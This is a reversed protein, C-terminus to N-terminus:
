DDAAEWTDPNHAESILDLEDSRVCRVSHHDEIEILPIRQMCEERSFPCRDAFTCKPEPDILTPPNGPITNLEKDEGLEPFANLLGITYPHRPNNIISHTDSYEVVEGGYFVATNDCREAVVSIDHTVLIIGMELEEQIATINDLIERQNIVDLATTPEDMILVKPELALALAIMARQKMGGSFQHPYDDLRNPELGVLHFCEEARQLAQARSIERHSDIVEVIQDGISYVPDLANMSSQPVYAIEEWRYRDLKARPMTTLDEGAFAITGANIRGNDPLLQLIAKILTSKGSGSEGVIGLFEDDDLNLSVDRVANIHGDATSYAVDLGGIELLSM